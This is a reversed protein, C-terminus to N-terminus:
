GHQSPSTGPLYLEFKLSRIPTVLTLLSLAYCSRRCANVTSCVCWIERGNSKRAVECM